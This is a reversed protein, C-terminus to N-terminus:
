IHSASLYRDWLYDLRNGERMMSTFGYFVFQPTRSFVTQAIYLKRFFKSRRNVFEEYETSAAGVSKNGEKVEQLLMALRKAFFIAPRIGEGTLPLCQGASDGVLFLGDLTPKVLKQPFYGGHVSNIEYGYLSLFDNLTERLKVRGLYSGVGARSFDGCPFMWCYGNPLLKRDYWFHLGEEKHPVVTEIGFSLGDRNKIQPNIFSALVRECGSADVFLKAFYEGRDTIIRKGDFGKIREVRIEADMKKAFGKCFRGYDFTCFPYNIKFEFVYRSNHLYLVPHVQLLSDELGLKEIIYYLTGCASTQVTGPEKRDIILTKGRFYHAVSLGAFSAGAIILDYSGM